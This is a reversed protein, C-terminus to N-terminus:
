REMFHLFLRGRYADCVVLDPATAKELVSLQVSGIGWERALEAQSLKFINTRIEALDAGTLQRKGYRRLTVLLDPEDNLGAM